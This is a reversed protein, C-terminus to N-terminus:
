MKNKDMTLGFLTAIQLDWSISHWQQMADRGWTTEVSNLMLECEEQYVNCNHIMHSDTEFADLNQYRNWTYNRSDHNLDGATLRVLRKSATDGTLYSNLGIEAKHQYVGLVQWLAKATAKIKNNNMPDWDLLGSLGYDDTDKM